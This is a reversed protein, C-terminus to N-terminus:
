TSFCSSYPDSFTNFPDLYHIRRNNKQCIACQLSKLICNGIRIVLLQEMQLQKSTLIVVLFTNSKNVWVLM